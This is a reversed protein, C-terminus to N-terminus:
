KLRRLRKGLQLSKEGRDVVIAVWERILQIHETFRLAEHMQELHGASKIRHHEAFRLDEALELLGVFKRKLVTVRPRPQVLGELAGEIHGFMNASFGVNLAATYRDSGHGDFQGFLNKTRQVIVIDHDDARAVGTLFGSARQERTPRAANEDCVTGVIPRLSESVFEASSRHLEIVPCLFKVLNVYDDAAGGRWMM